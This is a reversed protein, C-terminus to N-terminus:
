QQNCTTNIFRYAKDAGVPVSLKAYVDSDVIRDADNPYRSDSLIKLYYSDM